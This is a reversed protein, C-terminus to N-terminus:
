SFTDDGHIDHFGMSISPGHSAHLMSLEHKARQEVPTTDMEMGAEDGILEAGTRVAADEGTLEPKEFRESGPM